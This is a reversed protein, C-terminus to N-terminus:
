APALTINTVDDIANMVAEFGAMDQPRIRKIVLEEFAEYEKRLKGALAEGKPTLEILWSRRDKPNLKRITLKRSELRDLVATLTSKNQGLVRHLESIPRPGKTSCYGILHAQLTSVGLPRCRSHMRIQVQRSAKHLPSLVRFPKM